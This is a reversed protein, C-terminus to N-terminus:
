KNKILHQEMKTGIFWVFAAPLIWIFLIILIHIAFSKYNSARTNSIITYLIIALYIEFIVIAFSNGHERLHKYSEVYSYNYNKNRELILNDYYENICKFNDYSSNNIIIIQYTVICNLIFISLSIYNISANCILMNKHFLWILFYYVVTMFVIIHLFNSEIKTKKLIYGRCAHFVLIPASSIYCYTLGYAAYLAIHYVKFSSFISPLFLLKITFPNSSFLFYVIIAGLVTGQAYRIGYFEWWRNNNPPVEQESNM